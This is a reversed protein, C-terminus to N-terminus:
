KQDQFDQFARTKGFDLRLTCTTPAIRGFYATFDTSPKPLTATQLATRGVDQSKAYKSDPSVNRNVALTWSDKGSIMYLSFAGVPVSIDGIKVPAQTFFFIPKGGPAWPDGQPIKDNAKIPVRQYRVSIQHGSTFTCSTTSSNDAGDQAFAISATFAFLVFLCTVVRSHM